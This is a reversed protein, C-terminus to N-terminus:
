KLSVKLTKWFTDIMAKDKPPAEKDVQTIVMIGADTTAHCLVYRITQEGRYTAISKKGTLKKGGALTITEPTNAFTYGYKQEEKTIENLMMDVIGSPDLTDYEQIIVMSGIPTAMMTQHVGGGLDTRSPTVDSPHDFSFNKAAFTVIAKRALAVQIKRGDSLTLTTQKDMDVDYAKGDVTLVYNGAMTQGCMFLAWALGIFLLKKM